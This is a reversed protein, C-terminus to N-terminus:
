QTKMLRYRRKIGGEPTITTLWIWGPEAPTIAVFPTSDLYARIDSDPIYGSMFVGGGPVRQESLYVCVHEGYDNIWAVSVWGCPEVEAMMYRSEYVGALDAQRFDGPRCEATNPPQLPAAHVQRYCVMGVWIGVVFLVFFVIFRPRTYPPM